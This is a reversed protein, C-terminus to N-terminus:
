YSQCLGLSDSFLNHQLGVLQFPRQSLKSKKLFDDPKIPKAQKSIFPTEFFDPNLMWIKFTSDSHGTVVYSKDIM